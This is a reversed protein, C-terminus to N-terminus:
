QQNRKRITLRRPQGRDEVLHMLGTMWTSPKNSTADGQLIISGAVFCFHNLFWKLLVVILKLWQSPRRIWWIEILWLRSTSPQVGIWLAGLAKWAHADSLGLPLGLLHTSLGGRHVMPLFLSTMSPLIAISARVLVLFCCVERELFFVVQHFLLGSIGAPKTPFIVWFTLSFSVQGFTM